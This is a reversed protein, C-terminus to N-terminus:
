GGEAATLEDLMKVADVVQQAEDAVKAPHPPKVGPTYRALQSSALGALRAAHAPRAGQRLLEEIGTDRVRRAEEAVKTAAAALQSAFRTREEVERTTLRHNVSM